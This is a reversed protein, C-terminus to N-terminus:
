EYFRANLLSTALNQRGQHSSTGLALYYGRGQEMRLINFIFLRGLIPRAFYQISVLQVYFIANLLSATHGRTYPARSCQGQVSHHCSGPDPAVSPSVGSVGPWQNVRLQNELLERLAACQTCGRLSM